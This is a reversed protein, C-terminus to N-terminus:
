VHPFCLLGRYSRISRVLAEDGRQAALILRRKM